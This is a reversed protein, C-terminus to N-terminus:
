KLREIIRNQIPNKIVLKNKMYTIKYELYVTVYLFDCLLKYLSIKSETKEENYKPNATKKM